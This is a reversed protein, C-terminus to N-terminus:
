PRKQIKVREIRRLFRSLIDFYLMLYLIVISFFVLSLNFVMTDTRRGLFYKAPAFFHTRFMPFGEVHPELYIPDYNQILRNRFEFYKNPEYYKTVIERLKTNHYSDQLSRAFDINDSLFKERRSENLTVLRDFRIRTEALYDKLEASATSNFSEPELENIRSFLGSESYLPLKRLENMLFPLRGPNSESLLGSRLDRDASALANELEKLRYDLNFIAVSRERESEYFLRGYRSDKFQSVMLAEYTWRTPMFEAIVPVKDVSGITRNLKDFPFMAGSLVMMPIMLLPIVIYITIASNLSASINLGIMNACFATAFLAMFYNPFLGKIGLIPNAVALFLAVQVMSIIAMIMVKSLLYSNRSLNLFKERKLVMRDRFIEEASVIMGLFLAVIISMFIYIPINENDKFVYVNSSPDAIYRIIYSLIFGLVPAELLTLALYQRNAAKSKLDRGLFLVLQRLKGPRSLTSHPKEQIEVAPEELDTRKFAEHWEHPTVKRESTYRGFEDIVQAEIIKFIIEPNVNGCLPCEGVKSNIQADRSRFHIVAEIPNGFYALYGGQDLIIVKDFLKFIESSPQHLVTIVLKGRLTLERLLDMVNESDRSSLGSTPEDLFLVSPERILELAINLRKRQGGSIVKNLPSGVKMDRKDYLGLNGLTKDVLDKLEPATKDSYSLAAAYYLNDFVTLDEILMDDQPVYGIVGELDSEGAHVDRGNIRVQGTNPNRSGSLINLLTTKGSGSAGLIGILNGESVSFSVGSIAKHGDSFSCTIDSAILSLREGKREEMFKSVIDTYYLPTGQSSRLSGGSPFTYFYGQSVPLGNLFLQYDSIYKLFYIDASQIRLIIILFDRFGTVIRSCSECELEKDDLVLISHNGSLKEPSDHRIFQEISTFEDLPIRFVEAVTNIINMRQPTFQKDANVLEYLRMLVVVKQPQNLTRTIKKCISLIKVSDKVSPSDSQGTSKADAVPGAHSDFLEMYQDVSEHTLQKSLFGLVYNRENVLMGGDQKVILAFLEMLARLIEESM